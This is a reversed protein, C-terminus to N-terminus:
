GDRRIAPCYRSLRKCKPALYQKQMEAIRAGGADTGQPSVVRMRRNRLFIPLCALILQHNLGAFFSHSHFWNPHFGGGFILLLVSFHYGRSAADVGPEGSVAAATPTRQFGPGQLTPRHLDMGDLHPPEIARDGALTRQLEAELKREPSPLHDPNQQPLLEIQLQAHGTHPPQQFLQSQAALPGQKPRDLLVRPSHLPPPLLFVRGKASLSASDPRIHRTSGTPTCSPSNTAAAPAAGVFRSSTASSDAAVALSSPLIAPSAHATSRARVPPLVDSGATRPM